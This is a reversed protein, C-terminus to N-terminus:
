CAFYCFDYSYSKGSKIILDAGTMKVRRPSFANSKSKEWAQYKKSMLLVLYTTPFHSAFLCFDLVVHVRITCFTFSLSVKNESILILKTTRPFVGNILKRHQQDVPLSEM